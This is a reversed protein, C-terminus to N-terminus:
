TEGREKEGKRTYLATGKQKVAAYYEIMHGHWLQNLQERSNSM